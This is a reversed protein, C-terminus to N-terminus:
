KYQIYVWFHWQQSRVLLTIISLEPVEVSKGVNPITLGKLKLCEPPPYLSKRGYNLNTDGQIKIFNQENTM